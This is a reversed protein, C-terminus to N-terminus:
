KKFHIIVPVEGSDFIENVKKIAEDKDSVKYDNIVYFQTNM